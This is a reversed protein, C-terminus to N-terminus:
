LFGGLTDNLKPLTLAIETYNTVAEIGLVGINGSHVTRNYYDTPSEGFIVFPNLHVPNDLLEQATELLKNQEEMFSLFQQSEGLLEDFKMEMAAQSLGNAATLLDMAWPAGQLSGSSFVQYTGVVLAVIAILMAVEPGLLKAFLRFAVKILEGIVMNIIITAIIAAAGHLGLYYGLTAGGDYVAM